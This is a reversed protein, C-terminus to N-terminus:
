PTAAAVKIGRYEGRGSFGLGQGPATAPCALLPKAEGDVQVRLCDGDNIVHYRHWAADPTYASHGIVRGDKKLYLGAPASRRMELSYDPGLSVTMQDDLLHAEFDLAYSKRPQPWAAYIQGYNGESFALKGSLVGVVPAGAKPAFHLGAYSLTEGPALKKLWRDGPRPGVDAALVPDPHTQGFALFSHEMAAPAPHHRDYVALINTLKRGPSVLTKGGVALGQSTGGDLNMAQFLGLSKMVAAEKQLTVPSLFSVILLKGGDRTFGLATRTASGKFVDPDKFGEEQPHLTVKGDRLLRPGATLSMWHTSRDPSGQARETIMEPRNGAHLIFTTGGDEWPSFKVLRGGKVMDGMVRKPGDESFYTGNVAVAAHSRQVMSSFDEAGVSHGPQNPRDAGGALGIDLVTDADRLNVTAVRLKAGSVSKAPALEDAFAPLASMPDVEACASLFAAFGLTMAATSVLRSLLQAPTPM